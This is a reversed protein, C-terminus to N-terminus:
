REGGAAHERITKARSFGEGVVESAFHIYVFALPDVKDIYDKIKIYENRHVVTIIIDKDRRSYGGCGKYITTGRNIKLNIYANISEAHDSIITMIIRRNSGAIMQDMVMASVYTGIIAFLASELSIFFASSLVVLGDIMFMAKALDIHLYVNMIKCLIDTGGTSAGQLFVVTLGVTLLACGILLNVMPDNVPPQTLPFLKEFILTVGSYGVTGLLTLLGFEKGLTLLGIIFLIINGILLVTGVNLVPFVHNVIIAIGTMGGPAFAGAALFFHTGTGMIVVGILMMLLRKGLSNM